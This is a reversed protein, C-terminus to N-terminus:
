VASMNARDENAMKDYQKIEMPQAASSALLSASLYTGALLANFRKM